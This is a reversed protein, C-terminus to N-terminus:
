GCEHWQQREKNTKLLDLTSQDKALHGQSIKEKEQKTKLDLLKVLTKRSSLSESNIEWIHQIMNESATVM